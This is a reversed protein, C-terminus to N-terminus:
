ILALSKLLEALLEGDAYSLEHGGPTYITRARGKLAPVQNLDQSLKPVLADGGEWANDSERVVSIYVAEPHPQRNLRGLLNGSSQPALDTLIPSLQEFLRSFDQTGLWSDLWGLPGQGAWLGLAATDAGLHPSAITILAAIGAEPHDVMLLRGVVGGASHGAIM